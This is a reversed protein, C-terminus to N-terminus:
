FQYYECNVRVNRFDGLESSNLHGNNMNLIELLVKLYM